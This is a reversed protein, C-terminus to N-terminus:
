AHKNLTYRIQQSFSRGEQKAKKKLKEVLSDNMAVSISKQKEKDKM